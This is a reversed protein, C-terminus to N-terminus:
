NPSQNVLKQRRNNIYQLLKCTQVVEDDIGLRLISVAECWPALKHRKDKKLLM